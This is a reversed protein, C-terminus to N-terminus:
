PICPGGARPTGRKGPAELVLEALVLRAVGPDLLDLLEDGAHHGLMRRDAQGFRGLGGVPRVGREDGGLNLRHADAGLIVDDDDEVVLKWTRFRHFNAPWCAASRPPGSPWRPRPPSLQQAASSTLASFLGVATRGHAKKTKMLESVPLGRRGGDRCGGGQGPRGRPVMPAREVPAHTENWFCELASRAAGSRSSPRRRRCTRSSTSSSWCRWTSRRPYEGLIRGAMRKKDAPEMYTLEVAKDIRGPRTSIFETTGDPLKRPQGLAPDIKTIDNTTIITFIGDAREVGDLCNLLCDFTLPPRAPRPRKDGDTTTRRRPPLMM